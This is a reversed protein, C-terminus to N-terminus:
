KIKDETHYKTCKQFIEIYIQAYKTAECFYPNKKYSDYRFRSVIDLQVFRQMIGVISIKVEKNIFVNNLIEIFLELAYQPPLMKEFQDTKHNKNQLGMNMNLYLLTSSLVFDQDLDYPLGDLHVFDESKFAELKHSIM